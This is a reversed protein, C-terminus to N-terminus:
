AHVEQLHGLVMTALLRVVERSEPLPRGPERNATTPMPPAPVKSWAEMWAGMGQGLLVALGDRAAPAPHGPAHSRLTEYRAAHQSASPEATRVHTPETM